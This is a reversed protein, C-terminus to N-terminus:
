LPPIDKERVDIGFKEKIKEPDYFHHRLIEKAGELSSYNGGFELTKQYQNYVDLYEEKPDRADNTHLISNAFATVSRQLELLSAHIQSCKDATSKMRQNEYKTRLTIKLVCRM